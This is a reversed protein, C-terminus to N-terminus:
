PVVFIKGTHPCRVFNGSQFRSVDVLAKDPAYPSKVLGATNTKIGYPYGKKKPLKDIDVTSDGDSTAAAGADATTTEADPPPPPPPTSSSRDSAKDTGCGFTVLSLVVALFLNSIKKMFKM